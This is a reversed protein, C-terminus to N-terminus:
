PKDEKKRRRRIRFPINSHRKASRISERAEKRTNHSSWWMWKMEHGCPEVHACGFCRVDYILKNM